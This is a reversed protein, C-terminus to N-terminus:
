EIELCRLMGMALSWLPFTFICSPVWLARFISSKCYHTAPKKCLSNKRALKGFYNESKKPHADKPAQDKTYGQGRSRGQDTTIKSAKDDDDVDEVFYLSSLSFLFLFLFFFSLVFTLSTRSWPWSSFVFLNEYMYWCVSLALFWFKAIGKSLFCLGKCGFDWLRM